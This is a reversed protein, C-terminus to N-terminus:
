LQWWAQPETKVLGRQGGQAGTGQLTGLRWLSGPGRTAGETARWGSVLVSPEERCHPCGVARGEEKRRHKGVVGTLAARPRGRRAWYFGAGAGETHRPRPTGPFPRPQQGWLETCGSQGM